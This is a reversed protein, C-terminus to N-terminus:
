NAIAMRSARQAAEQEAAGLDAQERALRRAERRAARERDTASEEVTASVQAAVAQLASGVPWPVIRDLGNLEFIQKDFSRVLDRHGSVEAEIMGVEGGATNRAEEAERVLAQAAEFRARAAPVLGRQSEYARQSENRRHALYVAQAQQMEIAGAIARQQLRTVETYDGALMADALVGPLAVREAQLAAVRAAALAAPSTPDLAPRERRRRRPGDIPVIPKPDVFEIPLVIKM